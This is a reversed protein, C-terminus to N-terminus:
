QSYVITAVYTKVTNKSSLMITRYFFIPCLTMDFDCVHSVSVIMNSGAVRVCAYTLVLRTFKRVPCDPVVIMDFIGDRKSNGKQTIWCVMYIHLLNRGCVVLCVHEVSVLANLFSCNTHTGDKLLSPTQLCTNLAASLSPPLLLLNYEKLNIWQLLLGFFARVHYESMPFYVQM